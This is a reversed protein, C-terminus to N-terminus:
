LGEKSLRLWSSFSIIKIYGNTSGMDELYVRGDILCLKSHINSLHHDEPFNIEATPKRGLNVMRKTATLKINHKDPSNPGEIIVM